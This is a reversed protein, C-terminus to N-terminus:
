VNTAGKPTMGTPVPKDLMDLTFVKEPFEVKVELEGGLVAAWQKLTSIFIDDQDLNQMAYDSIEDWAEMEEDTVYKGRQDVLDMGLKLLHSGKDIRQRREESLSEYFRTFDDKTDKTTTNTM